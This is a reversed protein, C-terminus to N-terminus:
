AAATSSCTPQAKLVRQEQQQHQATQKRQLAVQQVLNLCDLQVVVLWSISKVFLLWV